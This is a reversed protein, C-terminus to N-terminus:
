IPSWTCYLYFDLVKSKLAVAIASAAHDANVNYTENDLGFSVPSVVPVLGCSILKRLISDRVEVIEGVFGLDVSPHIQRRCKLLGCDVGSIGLANVGNVILANVVTKNVIGSLVMEVVELTNKDTIRLGDVKRIPYNLRSQWESIKQGGGHIIITSTKIRYVMRSFESMFIENGIEDGGIKLVRM